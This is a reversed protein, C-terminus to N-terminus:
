HRRKATTPGRVIRDAVVMVRAPVAQCIDILAQHRAQIDELETCFKVLECQGDEGANRVLEELEVDNKDLMAIALRMYPLEDLTLKVHEDNTGADTKGIAKFHLDRPRLPRKPKKTTLM